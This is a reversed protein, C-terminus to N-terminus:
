EEPTKEACGFVGEFLLFGLYHWNHRLFILTPFVSTPIPYLFFPFVLRFLFSSLSMFERKGRECVYFLCESSYHQGYFVWQSQHSFICQLRALPFREKNSEWQRMVASTLAQSVWSFHVTTCRSAHGGCGPQRQPLQSLLGQFRLRVDWTECFHDVKTSKHLNTSCKNPWYIWHETQKYATIASQTTYLLQTM